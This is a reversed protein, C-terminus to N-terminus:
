RTKGSRDVWNKRMRVEPVRRGGSQVPKSGNGNKQEKGSKTSNDRRERFSFSGLLQIDTGLVPESSFPEEVGLLSEIRSM